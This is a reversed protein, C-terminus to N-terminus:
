SAMASPMSRAMRNMSAHPISRAASARRCWTSKQVAVLREDEAVLLREGPLVREGTVPVVARGVHQPDALAGAAEVAGVDLEEGPDAVREAALDPGVAV